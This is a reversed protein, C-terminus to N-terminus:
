GDPDRLGPLVNGAVRALVFGVALSLVIVGLSGWETVQSRSGMRYQRVQMVVEVVIWVVITIDILWGLVDTMGSISRIAYRRNCRDTPPDQRGSQCKHKGRPPKDIRNHGCTSIKELQGCREASVVRQPSSLPLNFFPRLGRLNAPTQGPKPKSKPQTARNQSQRQTAPQTAPGRAPPKQTV